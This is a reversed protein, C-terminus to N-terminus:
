PLQVLVRQRVCRRGNCVTQYQWEYRPQAVQVVADPKAGQVVAAQSLKQGTIPNAYEGTKSLAKGEPTLNWISGKAASCKCIVGAKLCYCVGKNSGKCNCIGTNAPAPTSRLISSTNTIDDLKKEIVDLRRNQEVDIQFIGAPPSALSVSPVLLLFLPLWSFHFIGKPKDPADKADNAMDDLEEETLNKGAEVLEAAKRRAYKGRLDTEQRVVQLAHGFAVPGGAKTQAKAAAPSSCGKWISLIATIFTMILTPDIIEDPESLVVALKDITSQKM